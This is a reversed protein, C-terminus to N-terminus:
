RPIRRGRIESLNDPLIVDDPIDLYVHIGLGELVALVKGIQATPKGAEFDTLFRISATGALDQARIGQAIRTARVILGIDKPSHVPTRM